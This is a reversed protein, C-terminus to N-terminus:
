NWPRPEPRLAPGEDSQRTAFFDKLDNSLGLVEKGLADAVELTRISAYDYSAMRSVLRHFTSTFGPTKTTDTSAFYSPARQYYIKLGNSLTVYGTLPTSYLFISNGQIDYYLPKGGNELFDAMGINKIDNEDMPKLKYWNGSADLVEVRLVKLHSVSLAYDQQGSVLSTTGIPLDTFNIDDFQWRGDSQWIMNVVRDLARNILGTFAKLRNSNNTIQGYGNDGFLAFECDQILGNEQNVTDSFVM